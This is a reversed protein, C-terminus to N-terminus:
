GKSFVKGNVFFGIFVFNIDGGKICIDSVGDVYFEVIILEFSWGLFFEIKLIFDGKDYLFIM